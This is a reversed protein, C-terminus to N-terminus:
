ERMKDDRSEKKRTKVTQIAKILIKRVKIIRIEEISALKM